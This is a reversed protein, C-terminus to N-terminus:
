ALYGPGTQPFRLHGMPSAAPQEKLVTQPPATVMWRSSRGNSGTITIADGTTLESLKYLAPISLTAAGPVGVAGAPILPADVDLAPIILRAGSSGIETVFPHSVPAPRAARPQRTAAARWILAM